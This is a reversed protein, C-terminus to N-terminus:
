NRGGLLYVESICTDDYKTGTTAELITIRIRYPHIDGEGFDKLITVAGAVNTNALKFYPLLRIDITDRTNVSKNFDREVADIELLVRTPASNEKLTAESKWYGPLIAIAELSYGDCAFEIWEGKGIGPKGEVWATSFDDDLVNEAAYKGKLTSSAHVRIKSKPIRMHELEQSRGRIENSYEVILISSDQLIFDRQDLAFVGPSPQLCAIGDVKVTGGDRLVSRSDIALQFHGITSNGWYKAPSLDYRVMRNDYQKFASKSYAYDTFSNKLTFSVELTASSRAEIAFTTLYWHRRFPIANEDEEHVVRTYQIEQDEREVFSLTRGGFRFAFNRVTSKDWSPVERDSDVVEQITFDVPFGYSIGRVPVKDSNFLVYTATIHSYDGDLVINLKESRVEISHVNLLKVKGFQLVNSGDVPGGNSLADQPFNCLLVVCIAINSFLFLRVHNMTTGKGYALILVSSKVAVPRERVDGSPRNPNLTTWLM